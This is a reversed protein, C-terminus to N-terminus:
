RKVELYTMNRLNADSATCAGNNMAQLYYTVSGNINSTDTYSYPYSREYRGGVYAFTPHEFLVTSGRLLRLKPASFCGNWINCVGSITAPNGTRTVTLQLITTWSGTFLQLTTSQVSSPVTVANGAIQLTNVSANGLVASAATITGTAIQTATISGTTVKGGNITTTGSSYINNEIVDAAAQGAGAVDAGLTAATLGTPGGIVLKNGTISGGAIEDASISGAAIKGSTIANAQIHDSAITGDVILDGDIFSGPTVWTDSTGSRRYTGALKGDDYEIVVVTGYGFEKQNTYTKGTFFSVAIVADSIWTSDGLVPKNYGAKTYTVFPLGGDKAKVPYLQWDGVVIGLTIREAIWYATAPAPGVVTTWTVGAGPTTPDGMESFLGAITSYAREYVPAAGDIVDYITISGSTIRSM